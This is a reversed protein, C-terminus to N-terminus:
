VKIVKRGNLVQKVILNHGPLDGFLVVYSEDQIRKFLPRSFSVYEPGHEMRILAGSLWTINQLKMIGFSISASYLTDLPEVLLFQPM